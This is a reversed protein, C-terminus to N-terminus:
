YGLEDEFLNTRPYIESFLISLAEKVSQFVVLLHSTIVVRVQVIFLIKKSLAFEAFEISKKLDRYNVTHVIYQRYQRYLRYLISHYRYLINDIEIYDISDIYDIYDITADISIFFHERYNM